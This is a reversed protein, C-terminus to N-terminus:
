RNQVDKRHGLIMPLNRDLIRLGEPCKKLKEVNRLAEVSTVVDLTNCYTFPYPTWSTDREYIVDKGNCQSSSFERLFVYLFFVRAFPLCVICVRKKDLSPIVNSFLCWVCVVALCWVFQM